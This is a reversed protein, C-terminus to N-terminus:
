IKRIFFLLNLKYIEFLWNLQKKLLTPKIHIIQSMKHGRKCAFM